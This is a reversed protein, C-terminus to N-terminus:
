GRARGAPRPRRAGAGPAPARFWLDSPLTDDIDDDDPDDVVDEEPTLKPTRMRDMGDM